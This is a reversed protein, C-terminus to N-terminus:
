KLLTKFVAAAGVKAAGASLISRKCSNLTMGMTSIDDILLIKRGRVREPDALFAGAVNNIRDAGVLESQHRTDKIRVVARSDNELGTEKAFADAIIEAQNYGRQRLRNKHLPIPVVLNYGDILPKGALEEAMMHGFLRGYLWQGKFKYELMAKRLEGTYYYPSIVFWKGDEELCCDDKVRKIKKNCEDCIGIQKYYFAMDEKRRYKNCMICYRHCWDFIMKKDAEFNEQLDVDNYSVADFGPM